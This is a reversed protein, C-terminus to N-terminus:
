NSICRTNPGARVIGRYCHGTAGFSREALADVDGDRGTGGAAIIGAEDIATFLADAKAEAALLAKLRDSDDMREQTEVGQRRRGARGRAQFMGEVAAPGIGSAGGTLM